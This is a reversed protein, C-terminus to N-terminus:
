VQAKRGRPRLQAGTEKLALRVTQTSVGFEDAIHRLTWGEVLYLYIWQAKTAANEQRKVFRRKSIQITNKTAM